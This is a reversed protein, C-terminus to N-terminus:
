PIPTCLPRSCELINGHCYGPYSQVHAAGLLIRPIIPPHPKSPAQSWMLLKQIREMGVDFLFGTSFAQQVIALPCAQSFM